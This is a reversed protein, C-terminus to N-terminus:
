IVLKLPPPEEPPEQLLCEEAQRALETFQIPKRCYGCGSANLFEQVARVSEDGVFIMQQPALLQGNRIYDLLDEGEMDALHLESIVLDVRGAALQQLAERGNRVVTIKADWAGCLKELLAATAPDQDVVLINRIDAAPREGHQSAEGRGAPEWLSAVGCSGCYSELHGRIRLHERQAPDLAFAAEHGCRPCRLRVDKTEIKADSGHTSRHLSGGSLDPDTAPGLSGGLGPRMVPLAESAGQKTASLQDALRRTRGSLPTVSLARCLPMQRSKALLLAGFMMLYSTKDPLEM